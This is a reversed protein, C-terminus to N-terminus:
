ATVLEKTKGAPKAPKARHARINAIIEGEEMEKNAKVGALGAITLLRDKTEHELGDGKPIVAGKVAVVGTCLVPNGEDPKSTDKIEWWAMCAHGAIQNPPCVKMMENKHHMSPYARCEIATDADVSYFQRDRGMPPVFDCGTISAANPGTCLLMIKPGESRAMKWLVVATLEGGFIFPVAKCMDIFDKDDRRYFERREIKHGKSSPNDIFSKGFPM